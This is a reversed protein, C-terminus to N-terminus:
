PVCERGKDYSVCGGGRGEGRGSAQNQWNNTVVEVSDSPLKLLVARAATLKRSATSHVYLVSM